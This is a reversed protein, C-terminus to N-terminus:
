DERFARRLSDTLPALIYDMTTRKGTKIMVEAGMGPYLERGDLKKLEEADITVRALFYAAGTREDTFSDASVRTLKGDLMPTNRQKFATLRVQAPLGAYVVDIDNPTVQAEIVLTDDEPVIDLLHQGPTIVGAETHVNLGMVVGAQPARIDTRVLIDEAAKLRESVDVLEAQTDRLSSVVQNLMSNKLDIIELETEGIRQRAKAILSLHDGLDGQLEAEERKLALLRAKGTYGKEFLTELSAREDEILALQNEEATVQAELGSIEKNLQAIRKHFIHIRGETSKRRAEFLATEADLVRAVQPQDRRATLSEPYQIEPASAREAELRAQTALLKDYRSSLLELRARAQTDDLQILVQDEAVADGEKVLLSKVIGGELHQVTKRNSAVTVRGPALAASDLPALAAWAGFGGFFIFIIIVAAMLPKGVPPREPPQAIPQIKGLPEM